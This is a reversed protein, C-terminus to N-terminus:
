KEEGDSSQKVLRIVRRLYKEHNKENTWHWGGWIMHGDEYEAPESPHKKLILAIAEGMIAAKKTLYRRRRTPAYYVDATMKSIAAM